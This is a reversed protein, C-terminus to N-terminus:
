TPDKAASGGVATAAKGVQGAVDFFTYSLTITTVEAPLKPDIVFVVPFRKSESGQLMQQQFCFCELKRFYSGAISPAYSPIAQGAMPHNATNVLEYEVTALEGPHVAVSRAMPQFRWPGHINADFEIVVKRTTDIQTSKAFAEASEDRRTLNNIGTVECIANYLPIMAWGFGFMMLAFVALKGLMPLNRRNRGVSVAAATAPDDDIKLKDQSM